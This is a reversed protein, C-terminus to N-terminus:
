LLLIKQYHLLHVEPNEEYDSRTIRYLGFFVMLTLFLIIYLFFGNAGLLQMAISCIIPGCMAGVGFVINLGSGAAVFKDKTINDNVYALIIPFLTLTM